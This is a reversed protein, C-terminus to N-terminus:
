FVNDLHRLNRFRLFKLHPVSHHLLYMLINHFKEDSRVIHGSEQMQYHVLDSWRQLCELVEFSRAEMLSGRGYKRIVIRYKKGVLNDKQRQEKFSPYACPWFVTVHPFVKHFYTNISFLAIGPVAHVSRRRGPFYTRLLTQPLTTDHM